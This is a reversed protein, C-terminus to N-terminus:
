PAAPSLCLPLCALSLQGQYTMVLNGRGLPMSDGTAWHGPVNVLLWHLWHRNTPQSASPADPDVMMVAAACLLVADTGEVTTSHAAHTCPHQQRTYYDFIGTDHPWWVRKPQNQVRHIDLHVGAPHVRTKSDYEVQARDVISHCVLQLSHTLRSCYSYVAFTSLVTLTAPTLRHATHQRGHHQAALHRDCGAGRSSGQVGGYASELELGVFNRCRHRRRRNDVFALHLFSSRRSNCPVRLSRRYPVTHSSTRLASGDVLAVLDSVPPRASASPSRRRTPQSPHTHLLSCHVAALAPSPHRSRLVFATLARM